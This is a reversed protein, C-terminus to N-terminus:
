WGSVFCGFAEVKQEVKVARLRMFRGSMRFNMGGAFGFGFGFM